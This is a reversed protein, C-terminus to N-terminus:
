CYIFWNFFFFVLHPFLLPVASQVSLRAQTLSCCRNEERREWAGWLPRRAPTEGARRDVSTVARRGKGREPDANVTPLPSCGIRLQFFSGM